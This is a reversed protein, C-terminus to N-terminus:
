RGPADIIIIAAIVYIIMLVLLVESSEALDYRSKTSFVTWALSSNM